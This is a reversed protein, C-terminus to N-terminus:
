INECVERGGDCVYACAAPTFILHESFLSARSLRLQDWVAHICCRRPPRAWLGGTGDQTIRVTDGIHYPRRVFVFQAALMFRRVFPSFAVLFGVILSSFVLVQAGVRVLGIGTM